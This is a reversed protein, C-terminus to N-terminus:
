CFPKIDKLTYPMLCRLLQSSALFSLTGMERAKEDAKDYNKKELNRLLSNCEQVFSTPSFAQVTNKAVNDVNNHSLSPGISKPIKGLLKTWYVLDLSVRFM